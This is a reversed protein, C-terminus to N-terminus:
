GALATDKDTDLDAGASDAGIGNGVISSRKRRDSKDTRGCSGTGACKDRALLGALIRKGSNVGVLAAAAITLKAIADRERVSQDDASAGIDIRYDLEELVPQRSAQERGEAYTPVLTRAHPM